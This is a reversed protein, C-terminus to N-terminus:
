HVFHQCVSLPVIAWCDTRSLINKFLVILKSNGPIIGVVTVMKGAVLSYRKSLNEKIVVRSKGPIVNRIERTRVGSQHNEKTIRIVCM